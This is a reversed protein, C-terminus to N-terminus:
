GKEHFIFKEFFFIAVFLFLMLISLKNLWNCLVKLNRDSEMVEKDYPLIYLYGKVSTYEIRYGNRLDLLVHILVKSISTIAFLILSVIYIKEM